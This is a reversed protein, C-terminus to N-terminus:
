QRALQWETPVPSGERVFWCGLRHPMPRDGERLVVRHPVYLSRFTPDRMQEVPAKYTYPQAGDIAREREAEPKSLFSEVEHCFMATFTVDPKRVTYVYAFDYKNHGPIIGHIEEEHAIFSETKGLMDVFAHHPAYYALGAYYTGITAGEPLNREFSKTTVIVDDLWGARDWSMGLLGRESKVPVFLAMLAFAFVKSRAELKPWLSGMTLALSMWLLPTVPGLFRMYLFADGGVYIAYAWVALVPHLLRRARRVREDAGPALLVFAIPLGYMILGRTGYSLIGNTLRATLSFVKLYATNPAPHGYVALRWAVLGGAAVGLAALPGVHRRLVVKLPESTALKDERVRWAALVLAVVSGDARSLALVVFGTAVLWSRKAYTGYIVAASALTLATTELGSIAFEFTSADFVIALFAFVALPLPVEERELVAYSLLGAGLLCLGGFVVVYLTTTGEHVGLAHPIVMLLTWLPNSYGDVYEGANYVLGRGEAFNRAYRMSILADDSIAFYLRGAIRASARTLSDGFIAAFATAAGAIMARPRGNARAAVVAFLGVLIAFEVRGLQEEFGRWTYGSSSLLELANGYHYLQDTVGPRHRVYGLAASGGLVIAILAASLRPTM